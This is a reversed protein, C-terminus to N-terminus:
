CPSRDRPLSTGETVASAQALASVQLGWSDRVEAFATPSLCSSLSSSLFWQSPLGLYFPTLVGAYRQLSLLRQPSHLAGPSLLSADSSPFLFHRDHVVLLTLVM